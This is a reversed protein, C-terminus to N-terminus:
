KAPIRSINDWYEPAWNGWRGRFSTQEWNIICLPCNTCLSTIYTVLPMGSQYLTTRKLVASGLADLSVPSLVLPLGCGLMKVKYQSVFYFANCMSSAQSVSLTIRSQNPLSRCRKNDSITVIESKEKEYFSFRFSLQLYHHLIGPTLYLINTFKFSVSNFFRSSSPVILQTLEASWMQGEHIHKSWASPAGYQPSAAQLIFQKNIPTVSGPVTSLNNNSRHSVSQSTCKTAVKLADTEVPLSALFFDLFPSKDNM